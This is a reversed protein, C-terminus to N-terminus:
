NYRKKKFYYALVLTIILSAGSIGLTAIIHNNDFTKESSSFSKNNNTNSTLTDENNKERDNFSTNDKDTESTNTKDENSPNENNNNSPSEDENKTVKIAFLGLSNTTVTYKDDEFTGTLEVSSGDTNILYAKVDSNSDVNLPFSVKMEQNMENPMDGNSPMQGPTTTSDGNINGNPPNRNNDPM